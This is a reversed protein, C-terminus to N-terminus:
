IGVRSSYMNNNRIILCMCHCRSHIGHPRWKVYPKIDLINNLDGGRFWIYYQEKHYSVENVSVTPGVNDWFSKLDEGRFWINNNRIILCM